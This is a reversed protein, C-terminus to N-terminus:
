AAAIVLVHYDRRVARRSLLYERATVTGPSRACIEALGKRM